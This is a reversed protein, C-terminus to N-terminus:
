DYIGLLLGRPNFLLQTFIYRSSSKHSENFFIYIYSSQMPRVYHFFDRLSVALSHLEGSESSSVM